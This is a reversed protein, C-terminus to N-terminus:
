MTMCYQQPILIVSFEIALPHHLSGWVKSVTENLNYMIVKHFISHGQPLSPTKKELKMEQSLRKLVQQSQRAVEGQVLETSMMIVSVTMRFIFLICLDDSGYCCSSLLLKTGNKVDDYLIASSDSIVSFEIALTQICVEGCKASLKWEFQVLAQKTM